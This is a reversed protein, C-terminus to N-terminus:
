VSCGVRIHSSRKEETYSSGRAVESVANTKSCDSNEICENM